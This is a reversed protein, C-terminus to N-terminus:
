KRPYKKSIAETRAKQIAEHRASDDHHIFLPRCYNSALPHGEIDYAIKGLRISKLELLYEPIEVRQENQDRANGLFIEGPRQEPHIKM